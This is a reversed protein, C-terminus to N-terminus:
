LRVELSGAVTFPSGTYLSNIWYDVGSFNEINLRVIPANPHPQFRLGFNEFIYGPLRNLNATDAYFDSAYTAGGELTLGPIASVNYEAYLKAMTNSVGTPMKGVLAPSSPNSIIRANLTTVGGYLTLDPVVKGTVGLELGKHEELGDESLTYSTSGNPTYVDSAHRLDYLALTLQAAGVDAKSGLEYQTDLVPALTQGGNTVPLGANVSAAIAGSELGQVYTAYTSVNSAPKYILSAAPSTANEDYNTTPADNTTSAYNQTMIRVQTAGLLASWQPGFTVDDAAIFDQHATVTSLREPTASYPLPAVYQPGEALTLNTINGLTAFSTQPVDSPSSDGFYGATIDHRVAGSHANIDVLANGEYYYTRSPAAYFIGQSYTGNTQFTNNTYLYSTERYAYRLTSHFTIADNINWTLTGGARDTNYQWFTFKQGWNLNNNPPQTPALAGTAEFWGADIGNIVRYSHSADLQFLLNRALHFDFAGSILSRDESQFPTVTSGGQVVANVRYGILGGDIPGGTDLHAYLDSGGSDGLTLTTFATPTPRKLIYDISGGPNTVGYLFASTGNLVEVRQKDELDEINGDDRMGEYLQSSSFGRILDNDIGGRTDPVTFQVFPDAQLVADPSTAEMNDLLDQPIVEISYPTDLTSKTGFQGVKSLKDAKYGAATTADSQVAQAATTPLPSPSTEPAGQVNVPPVPIPTAPASQALAPRAAFVMLLACLIPIMRQPCAPIATPDHDV